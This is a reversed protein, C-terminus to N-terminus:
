RCSYRSTRRARRRLVRDRIRRDHQYLHTRAFQEIRGDGSGRADAPLDVNTDADTWIAAHRFDGGERQFTEPLKQLSDCRDGSGMGAKLTPAARLRQGRVRDREHEGKAAPGVAGSIRRWGNPFLGANRAGFHCDDGELYDDVM